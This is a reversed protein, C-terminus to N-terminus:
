SSPKKWQDDMGKLSIYFANISRRAAADVIHTSQLLSCLASHLPSLGKGPSPAAGWREERAAAYCGRAINGYAVLPAIVTGIASHLPSLGKGPSPAAGWRGEQAA